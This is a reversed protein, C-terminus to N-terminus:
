EKRNSIYYSRGLFVLYYLSQSLTFFLLFEIISLDNYYVYFFLMVLISLQCLTLYMLENQKQYALFTTSLPTNIFRIAYLFILISAYVGSIGWEDGFIFAFASEAFLHGIIVMPLAIVFLLSFTKKFSSRSNGELHKENTVKQFYVDGVAGAILNLPISLALQALALYGLEEASFLKFILINTGSLVATNALASAVSFKPFKIYKKFLTKYTEFNEKRWFSYGVPSSFGKVAAKYVPQNIFIASFVPGSLLGLSGLNLLGLGLQSAVKIIAKIVGAKSIIKFQETRIAFSKSVAFFSQFFILVPVLFLFYRVSENGLLISFQCSFLGVLIMLLVFFLANIILTMKTLLFGEQHEKAVVVAQDYKLSTVSVLVAVISVILNLIGFHEPEYIRTLLPTVAVGIVQAFATGFMLIGVNKLFGSKLFPALRKLM